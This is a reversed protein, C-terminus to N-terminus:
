VGDLQGLQFNPVGSPITGSGFSISHPDAYCDQRAPLVLLTHRGASVWLKRSGLSPIGRIPLDLLFKITQLPDLREGSRRQLIQLKHVAHQVVPHIM